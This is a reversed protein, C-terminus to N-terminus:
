YELFIHFITISMKLLPAHFQVSVELHGFPFHYTELNIMWLIFLMVTGRPIGKVSESAKSFNKRHVRMSGPRSRKRIVFFATLAEHCSKESYLLSVPGFKIGKLCRPPKPTTTLTGIAHIHAGRRYRQRRPGQPYSTWHGQHSPPPVGVPQSQPPPRRDWSVRSFHPLHPSTTRSCMMRAKPWAKWGEQKVHTVQARHM